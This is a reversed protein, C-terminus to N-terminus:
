GTCSLLVRPTQQTTTPPPPYPALRPAPPSCCLKVCPCVTGCQLRSDGVQFCTQGPLVWCGECIGGERGWESVLQQLETQTIDKRLARYRDWLFRHAELLAFVAARGGESSPDATWDPTGLQLLLSRLHALTKRLAPWTRLASNDTEEGADTNNTHHHPLLLLLLLLLSFCSASPPPRCSSPFTHSPFPCPLHTFLPTTSQVVRMGVCTARRM